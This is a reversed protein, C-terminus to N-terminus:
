WYRGYYRHYYICDRYQSYRYYHYRTLHGCTWGPQWYSPPTAVPKTDKKIAKEAYAKAKDVDGPDFPAALVEANLARQMAARADEDALIATSFLITLATTFFYLCSRSYSLNRTM